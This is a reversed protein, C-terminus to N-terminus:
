AATDTTFSGHVLDHIERLEDYTILGDGEFYGSVDISALPHDDPVSAIVQDWEGQDIGGDDMLYGLRLGRKFGDHRPHPMNERIEEVTLRGDSWAEDFQDGNFPHDEPLAAAEAKTLVGDELADHIQERLAEREAKVEAARTEVAALVKDADARDIEGASVLDELVDSLFTLGRQFFGPEDTIAADEEASAVSPASVISTIFGATVLLGGAAVAALVKSRM